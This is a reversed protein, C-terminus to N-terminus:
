KRGRGIRGDRKLESADPTRAIGENLAYLHDLPLALYEHEVDQERTLGLSAMDEDTLLKRRGDFCRSYVTVAATWLARARVTAPDRAQRQHGAAAAIPALAACLDLVFEIDV